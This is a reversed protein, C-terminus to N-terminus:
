IVLIMELDSGTESVRLPATDIECAEPFLTMMMVVARTKTVTIM